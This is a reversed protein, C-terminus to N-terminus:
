ESVEAFLAAQLDPLHKLRIDLYDSLDSAHIRDSNYSDLVLRTFAYGNKGLAMRFVPPAGTIKKSTEANRQYEDIFEQRKQQYFT